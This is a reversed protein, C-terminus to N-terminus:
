FRIGLGLYLGSYAMDYVFGDKDYDVTLYRYGAKGSIAKSFEYNVGALAQWTFESGVGFGGMDAYGVFRWRAAIPHQARVGVFPDVWDEQASREFSATQALFSGDITVDAEVKLYRLGGVLDVPSRGEGIRYALAAAYLTQKLELEASASAAAGIPGPGTRTATAQHELKLYIADLLLGWRNKRAEFALMLGADLNELIESSGMEVGTPPLAGAGVTGDMSAGWFYPALEFRWEGPAATAQAYAPGAAFGALLAIALRRM